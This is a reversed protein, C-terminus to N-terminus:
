WFKLSVIGVKRRAIEASLQEAPMQVIPHDMEKCNACRDRRTEDECSQYDSRIMEMVSLCHGSAQINDKSIVDV